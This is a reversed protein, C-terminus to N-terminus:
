CAKLCQLASNMTQLNTYIKGCLFWRSEWNVTNETAAMSTSVARLLEARLQEPTLSEIVEQLSPSAKDSASDPDDEDCDEELEYVVAAMHKCNNGDFAHPCDCSMEVIDGMDNLSVEVEYDESGSVIAKVTNSKKSVMCVLSSCWYDYGRELVRPSFLSEWDKNM